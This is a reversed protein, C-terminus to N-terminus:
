SVYVESVSVYGSYGSAIEKLSLAVTRTLLDLEAARNEKWEVRIFSDFDETECETKRMECEADDVRAVDRLGVLLAQVLTSVAACVIDEGESAFDSHGRSELGVLGKKGWFLTVRTV